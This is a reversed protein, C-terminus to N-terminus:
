QLHPKFEIRIKKGLMLRCLLALLFDLRFSRLLPRLPFFYYTNEIFTKEHRKFEIYLIADRDHKAVGRDDIKTKSIM